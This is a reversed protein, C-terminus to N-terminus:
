EQAAVINVPIICTTTNGYLDVVVVQFRYPGGPPYLLPDSIDWSGLNENEKDATYQAIFNPADSGPFQVEFRYFSFSNTQATGFIEVIGTLNSGAVPATIQANPSPCDPQTAQEPVPTLTPLPTDTVAVTPASVVVPTMVDTTTVTLQALPPTPTLLGVGPTPTTSALKPAAPLLFQRSLFVTGALLLFMVAMLRARQMRQQYIQRELTFQAVDRRRKAASATFLYAIAGLLCAAYVLIAQQGLWSLVVNM